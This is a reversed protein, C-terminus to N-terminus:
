TKVDGKSYLEEFYQKSIINVLAAGVFALNVVSYYQRRWFKWTELVLKSNEVQIKNETVRLTSLSNVM